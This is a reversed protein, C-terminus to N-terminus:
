KLPREGKRHIHIPKAILREKEDKLYCGWHYFVKNMTKCWDEKFDIGLKCRRCDM